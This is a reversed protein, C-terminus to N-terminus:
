ASVLEEGVFECFRLLYGDPDQVLFEKQGSKTEATEYWNTMIERFVPYGKRNIKEYLSDVDDVEIQFNIGRGLPYETHATVWAANDLGEIMIQAEGMELYSFDPNKRSFKEKFGLLEQYFHKSKQYDTVAIEPVMRNWFEM